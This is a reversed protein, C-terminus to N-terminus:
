KHGGFFLEGEYNSKLVHNVMNIGNDVLGLGTYKLLGISSLESHYHLVSPEADLWKLLLEVDTIHTPCNYKLGLKKYPYQLEHLAMCFSVQDIHINKEGLVQSIFDSNLLQDAWHKWRSGIKKIYQGPLGYLGGNFNGDFTLQGNLTEQNELPFSLQFHEFISKLIIIDPNDFDVVKGVVEDGSLITSIDDLIAVDADCLFVFDANQLESTEVQQLKNCYKKDGWPEIYIVNVGTKELFAEFTTNSKTLHIYICRPNVNAIEILSSVFIVGQWYFKPKNDIVCSYLVNDKEM